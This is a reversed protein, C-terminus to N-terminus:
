WGPNQGFDDSMYIDDNMFPIWYHKNELERKIIVEERWNKVKNEKPDAKPDYEGDRDFFIATKVNYPERTLLLWRRLDQFRHGEFALEVARERRLESMFGDLNNVYKDAVHGVGARDRVVNVAEAATKSFKPSKANGAGVYGQAAAEAYMLYVDALRLLTVHINVNNNWGDHAKDWKNAGVPIMKQTLYGTRSHKSPDKRHQGGTHLAAYRWVENEAEM